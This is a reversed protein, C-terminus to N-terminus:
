SASVTWALQWADGDALRVFSKVAHASADAVFLMAAGDASHHVDLGSVRLFGRLTELPAAAASSRAWGAQAAVFGTL